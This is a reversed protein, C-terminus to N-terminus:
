KSQYKPALNPTPRETNNYNQARYAATSGRSIMHLGCHIPQPGIDRGNWWSYLQSVNDFQNMKM